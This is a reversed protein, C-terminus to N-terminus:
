NNNNNLLIKSNLSDLVKAIKRQNDLSPIWAICEKIKDPSTHRIKTQQSGADLQYKIIPSSILYNM